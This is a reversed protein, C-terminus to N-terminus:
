KLTEGDLRLNLDLVNVRKQALFVNSQPIINRQILEIIVKSDINREKAIREVQDVAAQVSIEPDLGSGSAYIMEQTLGQKQRDQILQIQKPFKPSFNSVEQPRGHFHMPLQFDQQLLKSGLLVGNKYILSGDAKDKWFIQGIGTILLPYIVGTLVTFFIFVKLSLLISNKM